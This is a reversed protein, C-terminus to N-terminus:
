DFYHQIHLFGPPGQGDRPTVLFLRDFESSHITVRPKHGLAGIVAPVTNDHGIVLVIEKPHNARIHELVTKAYRDQLAQDLPANRLAHGLPICHVKADIGRAALLAKLSAATQATRPVDSTYIATIGADKLLCALGAAQALGIDSLAGDTRHAHRVLYVAQQARAPAPGATTLWTLTLFLARQTM